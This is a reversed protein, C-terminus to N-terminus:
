VAVGIRGCVGIDVGRLGPPLFGDLLGEGNRSKALAVAAVLSPAPPSAAIPVAETHWADLAAPIAMALPALLPPSPILVDISM